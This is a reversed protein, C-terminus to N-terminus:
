GADDAMRILLKRRFVLHVIESYSKRDLLWMGGTYFSVGVLISALLVIGADVGLTATISRTVWVFVAMALSLLAPYRLNSLYAQWPLDILRNAISVVIPILVLWTCTVGLAVAVIGWQVTVLLMPLFIALVVLNWRFEIDPRGTAKFVSGVFTGVSHMIGVVCFIRILPIAPVWQEGYIFSIAEPAVVFLGAMLPFVISAVYYVAKLYGNRLRQKDEQIMAMAPFLAQAVASSIHIRPLTMIQYALTYLGLLGPGLFRGILLYDLNEIIYVLLSAGAVNSGFGVLEWLKQWQLPVRPRWKLIKIGVLFAAPGILLPPIVLSWVGWGSYAMLLATVMALLLGSGTVIGVEKFQLNRQLVAAYVLPLANTIFGFSAV